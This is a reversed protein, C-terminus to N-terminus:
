FYVLWDSYPPAIYPDEFFLKKHKAYMVNIRKWLNEQMEHPTLELFELNNRLEPDNGILDFIEKTKNYKIEGGMIFRRLEEQDFACKAREELLDTAVIGKKVSGTKRLM